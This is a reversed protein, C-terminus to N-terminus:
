FKYFYKAFCDVEGSSDADNLEKALEGDFDPLRQMFEDASSSAQLNLITNNFTHSRLLLM